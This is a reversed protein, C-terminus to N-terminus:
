ATKGTFVAEYVDVVIGVLAECIAVWDFASMNIAHQAPRYHVISNRLGYIAKAARTALLEQDSSPFLDGLVNLIAVLDISSAHRIIKALSGEERPHWALRDELVRAVEDWPTTIGLAKTLSHASSYAYLAELCRYLALFFTSNDNDFISRCLVRYPIRNQDLECMSRLTSALKGEIWSTGLDCEDLCLRFFVNQILGNNSEELNYIRIQPFLSAVLEYDHGQYDNDASKDSWELLHSAM